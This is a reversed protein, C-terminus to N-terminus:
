EKGSIGGDPSDWSVRVRIFVRGCHPCVEKRENGELLEGQDPLVENCYPCRRPFRDLVQEIIM